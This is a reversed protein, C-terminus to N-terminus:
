SGSWRNGPFPPAAPASPFFRWGPIGASAPFWPNRPFRFASSFPRLRSWDATRLLSSFCHFKVLIQGGPLFGAASGALGLNGLLLQGYHGLFGQVGNHFRYGPSKGCLSSGKRFHRHLFRAKAIDLIFDGFVAEGGFSQCRGNPSHLGHPQQLFALLVLEPFDTHRHPHNGGNHGASVGGGGDAVLGDDGQFRSVANDKRGMGLSQGTGSSRRFNHRRRCFCGSGGLSAHGAQADRRQVPTLFQHLRLRHPQNQGGAPRSHHLRSVGRSLRGDTHSRAVARGIDVM